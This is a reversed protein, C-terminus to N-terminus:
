EKCKDCLIAPRHQDDAVYKGEADRVYTRNEHPDMTKGCKHCERPVVKVIVDPEEYKVVVDEGQAGCTYCWFMIGKTAQLDRAQYTTYEGCNGCRKFSRYRWLTELAKTQKWKPGRPGDENKIVDPKPTLDVTEPKFGPQVVGEKVIHYCTGHEVKKKRGGGGRPTRANLDPTWDFRPKSIEEVKKELEQNSQELRQVADTLKQLLEDDKKSM